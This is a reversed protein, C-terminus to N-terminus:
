LGPDHGVDHGITPCRDITRPRSQAAADQQMSSAASPDDLHDSCCHLHTTPRESRRILESLMDQCYQTKEARHPLNRRALWVHGDRQCQPIRACRTDPPYPM